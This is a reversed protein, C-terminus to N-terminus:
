VPIHALRNAQPVIFGVSVFFLGIWGFPIDIDGMVKRQTPTDKGGRSYSFLWPTATTFFFESETSSGVARSPKRVEPFCAQSNKEPFLFHRLYFGRTSPITFFEM